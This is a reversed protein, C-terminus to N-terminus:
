EVYSNNIKTEFYVCIKNRRRKNLKIPFKGM